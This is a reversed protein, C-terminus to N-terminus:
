FRKRKNSINKNKIKNENILNFNIILRFGLNFYFISIYPQNKRIM